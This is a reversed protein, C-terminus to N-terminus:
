WDGTCYKCPGREGPDMLMKCKPCPRGNYFDTLKENEDIYKQSIRSKGIAIMVNAADKKSLAIRDIQMM